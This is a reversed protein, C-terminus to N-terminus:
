ATQPLVRSALQPTTPGAAQWAGLSKFARPVWLASGSNAHPHPTPTHKRGNGPLASCRHNHAPPRNYSLTAFGGPRETRHAGSDLRDPLLAALPFNQRLPIM